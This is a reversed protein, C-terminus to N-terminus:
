YLTAGFRYLAFLGAGNVNRELVTCACAYEFGDLGRFVKLSDRTLLIGPNAGDAILGSLVNLVHVFLVCMHLM